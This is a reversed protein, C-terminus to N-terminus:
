QKYLEYIERTAFDVVTQKFKDCQADVTDAGATEKGAAIESYMRNNIENSFHVTDMYNDLNKVIDEEFQYNYIRVNDYAGLTDVVYKTEYLREDLNGSRYEYDWWLISVPPIIIEFETEPHANIRRAIAEINGKFAVDEGVAKPASITDTLEYRGLVESSAFTKEKYWCYPEAEDYDAITSYAVQKVIKNLLVDKNILYKVDDVPNDNVIFYEDSEKFSSRMGGTMSAYDLYYFVQKIENNEFATDLYCLLDENSGGARIAKVATVGFDKYLEDINTNEALSTGLVVADYDFHDLTGKVQYDRDDLVAKLFPLKGHYHYFPDFFVVAGACLVLLVGLMIFFRTLFKKEM